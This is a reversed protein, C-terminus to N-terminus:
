ASHAGAIAQGVLAYNCPRRQADDVRDHAAGVFRPRAVVFQQAGERAVRHQPAGARRQITV